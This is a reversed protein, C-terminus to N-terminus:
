GSTATCSSESCGTPRFTLKGVADDHVFKLNVQDGRQHGDFDWARADHHLYSICASNRTRILVTKM